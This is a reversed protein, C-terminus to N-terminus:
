APLAIVEDVADDAAHNGRIEAGRHVLADLLRRRSAHERSIREDVELDLEEVAGVVGDVGVLHRELHGADEGEAGDSRSGRSWTSIVV